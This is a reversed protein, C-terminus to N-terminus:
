GETIGGQIAAWLAPTMQRRHSGFIAVMNADDMSTNLFTFRPPLSDLEKKIEESENPTLLKDARVGTAKVFDSIGEDIGDFCFVEPTPCDPRVLNQYLLPNLFMKGGDYKTCYDSDKSILWLKSKGKCHSLLQEWTLQDGLTDAKKGPPSGREKRDRARQLEEPTHAIAGNFLVDLAKSVEDESRSIRQLSQIAANMLAANLQKTKEHIEGLKERLSSATEGTLDFLHDPVEFGRPKLKKFQDALFLAEVRLKHRQVEEVVQATVFIHKQQERLLALLKKGKTARYLDLYSNADIFVLADINEM